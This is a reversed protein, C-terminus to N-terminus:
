VYIRNIGRISANCTYCSAGARRACAACLTHGCPLFATDVQRVFCIPCPTSVDHADERPLVLTGDELMGDRILKLVPTMKSFRATWKTKATCLHEINLRDVYRKMNENLMDTIINLADNDFDLQSLHDLADVVHRAHAEKAKQADDIAKQAVSVQRNLFAYEDCFGRIDFKAENEEKVAEFGNTDKNGGVPEQEIFVPPDESGISQREALLRQLSVNTDAHLRSSSSTSVSDILYM